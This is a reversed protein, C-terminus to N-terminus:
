RSTEPPKDGSNLSAILCPRRPDNNEFAVLVQDDIEPLCHSALNAGLGAHGNYAVLPSHARMSTPACNGASALDTERTAFEAHLGSGFPLRRGDFRTQWPVAKDVVIHSETEDEPNPNFSPVVEQMRADDTYDMFGALGASSFRDIGLEKPNFHLSEACVGAAIGTFPTIMALSRTIFHDLRRGPQLKWRQWPQM